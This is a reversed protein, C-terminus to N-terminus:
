YDETLATMIRTTGERTNLYFRQWNGASDQGRAIVETEFPECGCGFLETIHKSLAKPLDLFTQKRKLAELAELPASPM